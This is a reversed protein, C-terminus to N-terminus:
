YTSESTPKSKAFLHSYKKKMQDEREWTFEPGRRSNWRVKVIPIRSQKLQKVKRDMIKVPEKIFNLKDDIQIEDLSIVLPEDAYCKKLNSVHFTSRGRILQDPFELRYAVMGVKALVKFPGIYRPNLKGRKGFCIVGKWPTVKLMVMDGVQFEMPKRNRNALSKQRDRAAQIRKKIHFIKEATEHIIEPGTLQADGVRLPKIQEKRILADAVVNSKGPHYRIECDYDSLLELWRRQRIKLANQDLIHQLSKHDTFVICKTGYLYHRWMKLAFVVDGLELDHTTYNKEHIKLQRSAYAIDKEKQMLVAGLGKHSADCYVVSNESGKPLALIPASAYLEEKKLLELIQKLHREHEVKNRSYILIDDIFVIVFKDLFSVPAAGLVLDIQFEVQRAPPLGPLDESFVKLFERVIPVDELRKEKSKVKTEKKTVQALFVQCGKEYVESDEYVIHYEVDIEEGMAVTYAKGRAEPIVPKNRHNQNELKPYDKKFHGQRGCEFCTATRQNVMPARQNVIAPFAAEQIPNNHVTTEKIARLSRKNEACRIAYGKLKQDMLSNALRIADRLRTPKASMANRSM